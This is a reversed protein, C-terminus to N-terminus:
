FDSTATTELFYRLTSNIVTATCPRLLVLVEIGFVAVLSFTAPIRSSFLVTV